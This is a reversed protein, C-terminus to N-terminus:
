SAGEWVKDTTYTITSGAEYGHDGGFRVAVVDGSHSDDEYVKGVGIASFQSRLEECIDSYDWGEKSGDPM